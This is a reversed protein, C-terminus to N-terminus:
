SGVGGRAAGARRERRVLALNRLYVLGNPLNALMFVPDRRVVAYALLLSSGVLSLVWFSPPVVSRGARESAQWQVLFRAAFFGNGILGIAIWGTNPSADLM